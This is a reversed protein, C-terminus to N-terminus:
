RWSCGKELKIEINGSCQVQADIWNGNSACTINKMLSGDFFKFGIVCGLEVSNPFTNLAPSSGSIYRINKNSLNSSPDGCEIVKFYHHLHKM